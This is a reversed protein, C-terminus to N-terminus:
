DLATGFPLPTNPTTDRDLHQKCSQGRGGERWRERWRPTGRQRRAGILMLSTERQGVGFRMKVGSSLCVSLCVSLSLYLFLSLSLSLTLFLSFYLTFSIFVCIFIYILSLSLSLSLSNGLPDNHMSKKRTGALTSM